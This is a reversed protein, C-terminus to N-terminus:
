VREKFKIGKEVEGFIGIKGELLEKGVVQESLIIYVVNLLLKENKISIGLKILIVSKPGTEWFLILLVNPIEENM